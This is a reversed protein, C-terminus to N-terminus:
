GHGIRYYLLYNSQWTDNRSSISANLRHAHQVQINAHLWDFVLIFIIIYPLYFNEPQQIIQTHHTHRIIPQRM